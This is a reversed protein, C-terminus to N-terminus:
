PRSGAMAARREDLRQEILEGLVTPPESLDCRLAVLTAEGMLDAYRAFRARERRSDEGFGLMYPALPLPSSPLVSAELALGPGRELLCIMCVPSPEHASTRVKVWREGALVGLTSEIADLSDAEHADMDLNMHPTGPYARVGGDASGIMLVDDTFPPWGRRALALAMTTKGMGSPACIALVGHPALVASAHLAEYGLTIAVDPLVRGLLVRQWHLDEHVPACELRQMTEDLLFRTRDAYTFLLEGAMGSQITLERGDGLAGSWEIAGSAGSWSGELRAPEVLELSLSPLGAALPPASPGVSTMGALPFAAHLDLGYALYRMGM